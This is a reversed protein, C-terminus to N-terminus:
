APQDGFQLAKKDGVFDRYAALTPFSKTGGALEALVSGDALIAATRGSHAGVRSGQPLNTLSQPTTKDQAKTVVTHLSRDAPTARRWYCFGGIAAIVLAVLSLELM